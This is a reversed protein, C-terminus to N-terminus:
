AADVDGTSTTRKSSRTTRGSSRTARGGTVPVVEPDEPQPAASTHRCQKLSISRCTAQLYTREDFRRQHLDSGIEAVVQDGKHLDPMRNVADGWLTLGIALTHGDQWEENRRVRDTRIVTFNCYETGNELCGFKPDRALNGTISFSFGSM